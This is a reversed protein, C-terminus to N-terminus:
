WWKRTWWQGDESQVAGPHHMTDHDIEKDLQAWYEKNLPHQSYERMDENGGTITDFPNFGAEKCDKMIMECTRGFIFRLILERQDM